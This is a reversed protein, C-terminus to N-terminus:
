HIACGESLLLEPADSQPTLAMISLSFNMYTRRVSDSAGAECLYDLWARNEETKVFEWL